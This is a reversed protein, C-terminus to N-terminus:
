NAPRPATEELDPFESPSSRRPPASSEPSGSTHGADELEPFESQPPTRRYAPRPVDFRQTGADPGPGRMMGPGSIGGRMGMGFIGPPREGPHKARYIAGASMGLFVLGGLIFMWIALYKGFTRLPGDTQRSLVMVIYAGAVIATAPILIAFLFM